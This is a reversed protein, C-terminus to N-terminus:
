RYISIDLDLHMKALRRLTVNSLNVGVSCTSGESCNLELDHGQESLMRLADARSELISLCKEIQVELSEGPTDKWLFWKWGGDAHVSEFQRVTGDARTFSKREGRRWSQDPSHKLLETVHDPDLDVGTAILTVTASCCRKGDPDIM